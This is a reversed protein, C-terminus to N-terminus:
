AALAVQDRGGQKAAYLARDAREVFAVPNEDPARYAAVGVSVTIREADHGGKRRIRSAAVTARLREALAQAQALPQGPLLLAFEEGGVRAALGGDPTAAQLVQAMARLVQDGFAHGYRDNVNKFHDIDLMLLCVPAGTPPQGPPVAQAALCAALRRDFARRNALGTLSDVLAEHRAHRVEDRLSDIERQSEDLKLQLVAMAAQMQVTHERVERLAPSEAPVSAADVGLEVSLRQLTHGYRATQDGALAASASMGGLLQQVVEAVHVATESDPEALHRRYLAETAAEDLVGHRALHADVAQHLSSSPDAVYAYWVAYSIPHLGAAQRSMLPLAKRLLETSREVTDPNAM